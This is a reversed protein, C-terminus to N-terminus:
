LLGERAANTVFSKVVTGVIIGAISLALILLAPTANRPLRMQSRQWSKGFHRLHEFITGWPLFITRGMVLFLNMGVSEGNLSFVIGGEWAESTKSELDQGHKSVSLDCGLEVSRSILDGSVGRGVVYAAGRLVSELVCQSSGVHVGLFADINVVVFNHDLDYEALFGKYVENGECRVKIKLEYYQENTKGHFARVLSASTLCMTLHYGKHAIAIGSCSFLTIDGNCLSISVVSKCIDSKVWGPLKAFVDQNSDGDRLHGSVLDIKCSRKEKHFRRTLDVGGKKGKQM